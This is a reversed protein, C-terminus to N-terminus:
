VSRFFAGGALVTHNIAEEAATVVETVVGTVEVAVVETSDLFM